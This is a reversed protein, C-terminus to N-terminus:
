PRRHRAWFSRSTMWSRAPVDVDHEAGVVDAAGDIQECAAALRRGPSRSGRPSRHEVVVLLEGGRQGDATLDGYAAQTVIWIPQSLVAGEADHRGHATGLDAPREALQDVLDLPQRGVADGLDGQEALVHVGVTAVQRQPEAALRAVAGLRNAERAGCPQVVAHEVATRRGGGPRRTPRPCGDPASCWGEGWPGGGRSSRPSPRSVGDTHSCRWRGRCDPLSRIRAAM